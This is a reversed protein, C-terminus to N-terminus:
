RGARSPGPQGRLRHSRAGGGVVHALAAEAIERPKGTEACWNRFSSRFGHVVTKEAIGTTRLVKALTMDSIPKGRRLPSPFVLGSEDDIMQAQKLVAMAADSLPVRHEVGAKMRSAPIIWTRSELNIDSCLAGRAEGSRASTLILFRLCLKSATSAQSAEITQLAESIDQYPLARFHTQTNAMSPLAEDIGEGTPNSEILNHALAWKMVARISQKLRRGTEPRSTWVKTLVKLVDAQTVRDIPIDGLGSLRAEGDAADLEQYAKCEEM